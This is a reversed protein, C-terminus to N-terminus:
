QLLVEEVAAGACKLRRLDAGDRWLLLHFNYRSVVPNHCMTVSTVIEWEVLVFTATYRVFSSVAHLSVQIARM